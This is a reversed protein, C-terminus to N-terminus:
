GATAAERNEIRVLYDPGAAWAVGLLADIQGTLPGTDIEAGVKRGTKSHVRQVVGSDCAVWLVDGDVAITAPDLPMRVQALRRGDFSDFKTLMNTEVDAVWTQVVDSLDSVVGDSPIKVSMPNKLDADYHTLTPPIGTMLNVGEGDADLDLAFGREKLRKGVPQHTQPDIRQLYLGNDVNAHVVM